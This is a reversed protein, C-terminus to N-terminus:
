MAGPAEAGVPQAAAGVSRGEGGRAVDWGGGVAKYLAVLDLAVDRQSQALQDQSTFLSREADLVTLFDTLGQAYLRRALDTTRQNARVANELEARSAQENSFAVLADEVEQFAGLVAARYAALSEEQAATRLAINGRIRGGEFVPWTVSPGISALRSEWTFLDSAHLTQLDAAGTIFFRPFLDRTAVGIEATAAALQRESRAVDPRRLLLDSPLGVAVAPPPVPIGGCAHLEDALSMPPEGLLVALRHMSQAARQQLAPITAATTATVSEARSVDLDPVLGANLLRRTLDLTAQQVELNATALAVRQQLSRYTVYELGVEGMLSVLVADRDAEAAQIQANAAEVSRRIGGFVDLEWNADFGVQFVDSWTGALASGRTPGNASPHEHTYSGSAELSPWLDAAVIRRAARAERIRAEAQQVDLNGRVARAVLDELERDDFTTWWAAILPATTARSVPSTGGDVDTPPAVPALEGWTADTRTPPRHYDPGVM